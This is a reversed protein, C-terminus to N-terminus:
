SAIAILINLFALLYLSFNWGSLSTHSHFHVLPNITYTFHRYTYVCTIIYQTHLTYICNYTHIYMCVVFVSDAWQYLKMHVSIYSKVHTCVCIITYAYIYSLIHM